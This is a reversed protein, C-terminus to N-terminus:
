ENLAGTDSARECSRPRSRPWLSLVRYVQVSNQFLELGIASIEAAIRLKDVEYPTKRRRERQIVDTADVVESGPLAAEYAAKTRDNPILCEGSQWSPAIMQFTGEYGIRKWRKRRPLSSLFEHLADAPDPAGLVGFEFWHPEAEWLLSRAETEYYKPISIAASGERPFVLTAAGIMPWFGSLLLVNEPLRVILADLRETEMARRMRELRDTNLM